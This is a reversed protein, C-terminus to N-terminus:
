DRLQCRKQLKSDPLRNWIELDVQLLAFSGPNIGTSLDLWDRAIGGYRRVAQDRAGGHEIRARM